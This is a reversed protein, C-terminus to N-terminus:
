GAGSTDPIALGAELDPDVATRASAGLYAEIVAPDRKVEAPLGEAIKVGFEIVYIYDFVDLVLGMDHDVLFITQRATHRRRASRAVM